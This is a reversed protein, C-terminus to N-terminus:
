FDGKIFSSILEPTSTDMGCIDLCGSDDPPAISFGASTMAVVVLKAPLNYKRRYNNLAQTPHIEGCWTESDTFIVFADAQVKNTDAWIMPQACDTRGFPLDQTHNMLDRLSKHRSIDLPVIKDQFAVVEVNKEVKYTIQAMACAGMRPTLGPVGSIEGVSMSGSVDLALVMRKGTPMVNGFALHYATELADVIDPVVKWEGHGRAGHGQSYTMLASLMAIPHVRAKRIAEQNTIREIVKRTAESTNVVMLGSKSLNGLNRILATLGLNPLLAEWILPSTRLHTPVCEMPLKYDHILVVAKRIDETKTETIRQIEVFADIIELDKRNEFNGDKFEGDVVWKYIFDHAPDVAKPHALRLLDANAWGDREQYKVVQFALDRATKDQYWRVIANRLGRGFGRFQSCYQVFHFLHTGIRAVKPLSNLAEKRTEDDGVSACMALVFLAPDNKPARGADSIAVVTKVVRLGDEKICREVAQANERTLEHEGQYYTPSESGLILFRQLRKWDSIAWAFGGANNEVQITGLIPESQPTEKTGYKRLYM